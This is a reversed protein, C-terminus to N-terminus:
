RNLQTEARCSTWLRQQSMIPLGTLAQNTLISSEDDGEDGLLYKVHQFMAKVSRVEPPHCFKQDGLWDAIITQASDRLPHQHWSAQSLAAVHLIEGGSGFDSSRPEVRKAIWSMYQDSFPPLLGKTLLM